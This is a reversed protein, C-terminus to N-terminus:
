IVLFDPDPIKIGFSGSCKKLTTVFDDCVDRDKQGMESYVLVWSTLNM